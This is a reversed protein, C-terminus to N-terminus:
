ACCDIGRDRGALCGVFAAPFGFNETVSLGIKTQSLDIKTQSLDIKTQSLDNHSEHLSSRFKV